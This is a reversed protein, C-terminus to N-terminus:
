NSKKFFRRKKKFGFRKKKTFKFNGEGPAAKKKFFRRRFKKHKKFPRKKFGFNKVQKM